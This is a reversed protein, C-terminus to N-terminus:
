AVLDATARAIALEENTPVVLVATPSTPLSVIRAGSTAAENASSDLAIGFPELGATIAARLAPNNEGVGATFVLADLSGLHILYAGLYGRIRHVYVAFALTAAPDGATRRKELERFDNVGALGLLGSRKNLLSEVDPLSLDLRRSLFGPLGPDLDGSRTGMVLGELPTMGMSTEVAVGQRIASASCGNGLHLVIQNVAHYDRGLEEACRRSVYAHSTGHFGYRRIQLRESIEHPIAYTRAVEPLGAFFATDFVAVHPIDPLLQRAARIGAVGPPNHLPALASLAEVERLVEDTIATPESFRAGGHVVRHGVAQVQATSLAPGYEEFLREVLTLASRHDAILQEGSHSAPGAAHRWSGQDEGIREVVGGALRAGSPRVLQYKVSSSGSNIVLVPRDNM